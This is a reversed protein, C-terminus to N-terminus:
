DSSRRFLSRRRRGHAQREIGRSIMAAPSSELSPIISPRRFRTSSIITAPACAITTAMIARGMTDIQEDVVNMQFQRPNRENFDKPGVALFGTAVTLRDKEAANKAPMLDGAIQERIFRNYPKDQNFADIVYDRYRWAYYYVYNRSMGSSEAYRAVDLWHRGWREGFRPSDLLRDIVKAFAAPSDDRAFADIEEPTPPLGTLDYTARRLLALKDARPSPELDKEELKELIFRDIDDKVWAAKKVAPPAPNAVTALVLAGQAAFRLEGFVGAREAQTTAVKRRWAALARGDDVWHELDGIVDKPLQEKSPMQLDKDTWRIAKILLSQDPKGPVIVAGNEGGKLMGERSDLFLGAKLKKASASHCQYCNASLVPRVKKEFFELDSSSFTRALAASGGFLRRAPLLFRIANRM